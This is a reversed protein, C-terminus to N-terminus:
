VPDALVSRQRLPVAPERRCRPRGRRQGAARRVLIRRPGRLPLGQPQAAPRRQRDTDVGSIYSVDYGNKELFRVLPYENSFYFDRGDMAGRTNVPRNYSIKYARGNAAGQYFDSGGYDNYAQWSTDSTQFVVDSHSGDYRVVFTIHSPQRQGAADAPCRVRRLRGDRPGALDRLGGLERLRLTRHRRRHPVAAPDPPPRVTHRRRNQPRRPGPVLRDPLHRDHLQARQHGGQLPHAPRRQCQDRDLLGPHRFRRRRLHGMGLAPSGPKSNECAVANLLPACPDAASALRCSGRRRLLRCAAGCGPRYGASHRNAQTNDTPPRSPFRVYSSRLSHATRPIPGACRAGGRAAVGRRLWVVTNLQGGIGSGRCVGRRRRPCLMLQARGCRSPRLGGALLTM